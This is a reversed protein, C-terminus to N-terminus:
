EVKKLGLAKYKEADVIHNCHPCIPYEPNRLKGCLVCKILEETTYADKWPKNLGLVEAAKRFDESITLPNGNSQAWLADAMNVLNRYWSLQYNHYKKILDQHDKIVQLKTKEGLVWFVGPMSGNRDYGLLGNVYDNVVSEAVLNSATVIEAVPREPDTDLFWSSPGVILIGPNDITGAPVKFIGPELTPKKATYGKHLLSVITCKDLPNVASRIATRNADAFSGIGIPM